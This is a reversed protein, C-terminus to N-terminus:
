YALASFLRFKKRQRTCTSCRIDDLLCTMRALFFRGNLNQLAPDFGHLNIDLPILTLKVFHFRTIHARTPCPSKLCEESPFPIPNSEKFDPQPQTAIESALIPLILFSTGPWISRPLTKHIFFSIRLHSLRTSLMLYAWFTM